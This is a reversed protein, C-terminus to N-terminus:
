GLKQTTWPSDETNPLDLTLPYPIHKAPLLQVDKPVPATEIGIDHHNIM